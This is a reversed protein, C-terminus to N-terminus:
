EKEFVYGKGWVTKIYRPNQPNKEIKERLRRIHVTLTNKLSYDYIENWVSEYLNEASQVKGENEVLVQLIRFETETLRKEEDCVFVRKTDLNMRVDGKICWADKDEEKRPAYRKLVARIRVILEASSFPKVIYDDAGVNFGALKDTETNKATLFLVPVDSRERLRRCTEVGDIGPMMVDLLVLSIADSFTKLAEYGSEAERVSYGSSILIQKIGERVASDDEVVMIMENLIEGRVTKADTRGRTDLM